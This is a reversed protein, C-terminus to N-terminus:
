LTPSVNQRKKSYNVNANIVMIAMNNVLEKM